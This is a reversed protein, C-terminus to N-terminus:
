GAWDIRVPYVEDQEESNSAVPVAAGTSRIHTNVDASVDMPVATRAM